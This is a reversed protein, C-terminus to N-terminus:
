CVRASGSILRTCVAPKLALHYFLMPPVAYSAYSNQLKLQRIPFYFGHQCAEQDVLFCPASVCPILLVHGEPKPPHEFRTLMKNGAPCWSFTRLPM